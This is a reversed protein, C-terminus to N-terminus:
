DKLCRVAFFLEKSAQLVQANKDDIWIAVIDNATVESVSAYVTLTSDYGFTEEYIEQSEYYKLYSAEPFM